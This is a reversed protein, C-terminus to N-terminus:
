KPPFVMACACIIQWSSDAYRSADVGILQILPFYLLTSTENRFGNEHRHCIYATYHYALGETILQHPSNM